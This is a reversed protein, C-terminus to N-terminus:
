RAVSRRSWLWALLGGAGLAAAGPYRQAGDKTCSWLEGLQKKMKAVLISNRATEWSHIIEINRTVEAIIFIPFLWLQSLARQIGEEDSGSQGCRTKILNPSRYKTVSAHVGDNFAMCLCLPGVLSTYFSFWLLCAVPLSIQGQLKAISKNEWATEGVDM